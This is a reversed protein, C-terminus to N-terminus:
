ERPQQWSPSRQELQSWIPASAATAGGRGNRRAWTQSDRLPEGAGPSGRPTARAPPRSSLSAARRGGGRRWCRRTRGPRVRAQAPGTSTDPNPGPAPETVQPAPAERNHQRGRMHPGRRKPSVVPSPYRSVGTKPLAKLCVSRVRLPAAPLPVHCAGTPSAALILTTLLRPWLGRTGARWSEDTEQVKHGPRGSEALPTRAPRVWPQSRQPAQRALM